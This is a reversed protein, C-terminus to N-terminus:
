NVSFVIFEKVKGFIILSDTSYYQEEVEYLPTNESIPTDSSSITIIYEHVFVISDQFNIISTCDPYYPNYIHGSSTYISEELRHNNNDYDVWDIPRFQSLSDFQLITKTSFYLRKDNGDDVGDENFNVFLTDQILLNNSRDYTHIDPFGIETDIYLINM